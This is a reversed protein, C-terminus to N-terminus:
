VGDHKGAEETGKLAACGRGVTVGSLTDNEFLCLQSLITFRTKEEKSKNSV